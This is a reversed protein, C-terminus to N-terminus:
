AKTTRRRALGLGLLGLGLLAVSGPEPVPIVQSTISVNSFFDNKSNELTTFGICGVPAGALACQNNTLVGLGDVELLVTYSYDDIIFSPAQFVFNGEDNVFGFSDDNLSFIDDCTSDSDVDCGGQNPTETFFSAFTITPLDFAAGPVPEFPTLTLSSTLDFSALATDDVGIKNNQHIFTGGAVSAGDTFLGSASNLNGTISVSSQPGNGWILQATGEGVVSGGASGVNEAVNEFSNDINYGWNTIKAAHALQAGALLPLTATATVLLKKFTKM